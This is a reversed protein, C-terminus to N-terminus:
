CADEVGEVSTKWKREVAEEKGNAECVKRVHMVFGLVERGM